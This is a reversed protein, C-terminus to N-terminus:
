QSELTIIPMVVYVFDDQEPIGIKAASSESATELRVSKSDLHPLVDQLHRNNFAVRINEGGVAELMMEAKNNGLIKSESSIVARGMESGEDRGMDFLVTNNPDQAFLAAQRTVHSLGNLNFDALNPLDQPILTGYNPFSGSMLVSTVEIDSEQPDDEGVRFRVSNQEEPILIEVAAGRRDSMRQVELLVRTPVIIRAEQNGEPPTEMETRQVGMRFGDAGVTTLVGERLEMMIGNLVPRGTDNATCFAVRGVAKRFEEAKMIIRTAPNIEPMPPFLEAEQGNIRAKSCGCVLKLSARDELQEMHVPERPLAEIFGRLLKNPVALAGEREISAPLNIRIAMELNTATMRIMGNEAKMLVTQTIPMATRAPTVRSTMELGASMVEQLCFAKM